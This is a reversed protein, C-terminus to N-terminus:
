NELIFYRNLVPLGTSDGIMLSPNSYKVMRCLLVGDFNDYEKKDLLKWVPVGVNKVGDFSAFGHLYEVGYITGYFVDFLNKYEPDTVFDIDLGFWTTVIETNNLSGLM